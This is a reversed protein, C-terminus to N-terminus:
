QLLQAEMVELVTQATKEWSFRKLNKYGRHICRRRLDEDTLLQRLGTAIADENEPDVFVAGDGAVEPLSSTMSTLLPTGCAQAELAPFGFGEYLSPYAFVRAGSILAAKADDSIYGPLLVSHDLGQNHIHSIIPEALWGQPGALVLQLNPETTLLAQFASILRKLNKRPQIRGIHLIYSGRIGYRSKAASLKEADLQNALESDYGPYVVTLKRPSVNYERVLAQQTAVSDVLVHSARHVNWRTSLDLYLRQKAPHAKPFYRYGLDHVTVLSRRPHILPLVHAPIFLLDPSNRLMEWSLGIHTWLRPFHIVKSQVDPFDDAHPTKRFYLTLDHDIRLKPLLSQLLHYSYGETGTPATSIARSADIGIRSNFSGASRM